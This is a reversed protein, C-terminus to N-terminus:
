CLSFVIDSCEIDFEAVPVAVGCISSAVRVHAETEDM